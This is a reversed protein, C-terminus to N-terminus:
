EREDKLNKLYRVDAKDQRRGTKRKMKILDDKSVVPISTQKVKIHKVNKVARKYNLPANIVIDIESLPWNPNFLSFAKMNKNRIWDERKNKDIFEMIDVPAKARFGWKKVLTLFRRLNKEDMDLLLDIDYTMRPIGWLNVAVGGVVIYRIKRKNFERFIGLYDLM